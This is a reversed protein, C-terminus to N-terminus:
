GSLANVVFVMGYSVEFFNCNNESADGNGGLWKWFKGTDTCCAHAITRSHIDEIQTVADSLERPDINHTTETGLVMMVANM